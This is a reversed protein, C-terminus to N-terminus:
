LDDLLNFNSLSKIQYDLILSQQQSKLSNRRGQFLPVM